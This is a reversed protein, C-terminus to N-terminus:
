NSSHAIFRETRECLDKLEQPLTKKIWPHKSQFVHDANSIITLQTNAWSALRLGNEKDVSTDNEGHAIFLPKQFSECIKKLDYEANNQQFDKWLDISQPLDQLTRGNKVFRFGSSKWKDLEKGIPFREEISAISAWTSISSILPISQGSILAIAGGKSHGILHGCWFDVQSDIWNVIAKVDEIEHTYTNQGFSEPDPFDIGDSVTGGNHTTNFKCFGYGKETFFKQVLNWAGWDKFGMFGHIFIIIQANFNKPIELDVLSEKGKAGIYISNNHKV